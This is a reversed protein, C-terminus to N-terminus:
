NVELDPGTPDTAHLWRPLEDDIEMETFLPLSDNVTAPCVEGSPMTSPLFRLPDHLENDQNLRNDANRQRLGRRSRVYHCHTYSAQCRSCVPM